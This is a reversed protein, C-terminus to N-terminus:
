AIKGTKNKQEKASRASSAFRDLREYFRSVIAECELMSM